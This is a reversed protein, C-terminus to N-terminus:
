NGLEILMENTANFGMAKYLSRGQDSSHLYVVTYGEDRCYDLAAEICRRALGQRRYDPHTYVNLIYPKRRVLMPGPIWDILWLGAGAAVSERGDTQTVALWGLYEGSTLRETVWPLFTEDMAELAEPTGDGMDAFMGHRHLTITEADHATARRITIAHTM